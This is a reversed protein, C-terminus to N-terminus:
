KVDKEIQEIVARLYDVAGKDGLVDRMSRTILGLTLANVEQPTFGGDMLNEFAQVMYWCIRAQKEKELESTMKWLSARYEEIMRACQRAPGATFATDAGKRCGSKIWERLRQYDYASLGASYGKAADVVYMLAERRKPSVDYSRRGDGDTMVRVIEIAEDILM